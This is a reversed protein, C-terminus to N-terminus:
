HARCTSAAPVSHISPWSLKADDAESHERLLVSSDTRLRGLHEKLMNNASCPVPAVPVSVVLKSGSYFVAEM